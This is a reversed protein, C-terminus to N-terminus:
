RQAQRAASVLEAAFPRPSDRTNTLAVVTMDDAVFYGVYAAYGPYAGEHEWSVGSLNMETVGLGYDRHGGRVFSISHTKVMRELSSRGVVKAHFLADAFRALGEATAVMAGDTFTATAFAPTPVPSNCRAGPEPRWGTGLGLTDDVSGDGTFVQPRVGLDQYGHAVRAPVCEEAQLFVADQLGLPALLRRKLEAAVTSDTAAEVVMGAIVYNPDGFRFGQDFNIDWYRFGKGPEAYPAGLYRLTERPAWERAPKSIVASRFEAGLVPLGSTLGLVQEITIRDGNPIGRVYDGVPDDLSAVGDEALKVLLAATLTKSISGIPVLTDTEFRTARQRDALGAAGTWVLRGNMMVAAAIGAKDDGEEYRKLVENFTRALAADRTAHTNGTPADGGCATLMLLVGLAFATV